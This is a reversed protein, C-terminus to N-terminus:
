LKEFPTLSREITDVDLNLNVAPLTPSSKFNWKCNLLLTSPTTRKEIAEIIDVRNWEKALDYPKKYREHSEMTLDVRKDQILVVATKATGGTCCYTVADYVPRNNSHDRINPDINAQSLLLNVIDIRGYRAAYHLATKGNFESVANIDVGSAILSQAKAINGSQAALMLETQANLELTPRHPAASYSASSDPQDTDAINTENSPNWSKDFNNRFFM